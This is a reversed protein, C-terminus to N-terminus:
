WPVFYWLSYIVAVGLGIFLLGLFMASMCGKCGSRHDRWSQRYMEQVEDQVLLPRKFLGWGWRAKNYASGILIALTIGVIIGMVVSRGHFEQLLAELLEGM